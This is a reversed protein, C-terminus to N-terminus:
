NAFSGAWPVLHVTGLGDDNIWYVFGSVHVESDFMTEYCVCGVIFEIPDLATNIEVGQIMNASWGWERTRLDGPPILLGQRIPSPTNSVKVLRKMVEDITDLSAAGVNTRVNSAATKGFNKNDVLIHLSRVGMHENVAGLARVDSFVWARESNAISMSNIDNAHRAAVLSARIWVLGVVSTCAGLVAIILLGFTWNAIENQIQSDFQDQLDSGRLVSRYCESAGRCQKNAKEVRTQFITNATASQSAEFKDKAEILWHITIGAVLIAIVSFFFGWSVRERKDFKVRKTETFSKNLTNGSRNKLPLLRM